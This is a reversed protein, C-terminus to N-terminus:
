KSKGLAQSRSTADAVAQMVSSRLGGAELARVGEITTGAPSTVADKLAAPTMGTEKIQQAAGLVTQVALQRAQMRDLGVRVGGDELAEIFMAVYAPGSGSLGTIAHLNEEQAVWISIGVAKFLRSVEAKDEETVNACAFLGTAAAGVVAPQNPMARVWRAGAGGSELEATSIGAAISISLHGALLPAVDSLVSNLIQPKVAVVVIQDSELQDPMAMQASLGEGILQACRQENSEIITLEDTRVVDGNLCGAALGAGMKGGGIILLKM